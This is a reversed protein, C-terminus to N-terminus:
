RAFDIGREHGLRDRIRGEFLDNSVLFFRHDYSGGIVWRDCGVAGQRFCYDHELMATRMALAKLNPVLFATFHRLAYHLETRIVRHQYQTKSTRIM